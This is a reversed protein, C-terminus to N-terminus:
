SVSKVSGSKQTQRREILFQSLESAILTVLLGDDLWGIVPFVDPSIDLPSVLYLLSGLIFAWRFKSKLINTRIFRHIFQRFFKM